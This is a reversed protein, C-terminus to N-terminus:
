LESAVMKAARRVHEEDRDPILLVRSRPARTFLPAQAGRQPICPAEKPYFSV